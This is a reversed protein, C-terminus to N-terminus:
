NGIIPMFYVYATGVYVTYTMDTGFMTPYLPQVELTYSGNAAPKWWKIINRGYGSSQWTDIITGGQYLNVKFAAGGRKSQVILMVPQNATATFTTWDVDGAGSATSKCLNFTPSAKGYTLPIANSASTGKSENSDPTCTVAITTSAEPTEPYVEVNGVSDVGRMRFQYTSGPNGAFAYSRQNGPVQLDIWESTASGDNKNEQYQIEFHDLNDMLDVASWSLQVVTSNTVAPLSNLQTYPMDMDPQLNWIVQGKVGGSRSLAQVYLASGAIAGYQAPNVAISWGNSADSDTGLKVWSQTWDPSHWYFDMQAVPGGNADTASATIVFPVPPVKAGTPFNITVSQPPLPVSASLKLNYFYTPGGAGPYDWPKVQIYYTGDRQLIYTLVSDQLVGDQEDDNWALVSRGDSDLLALQSDLVSPPNLTKADIDILIAQGKKGTLKYYDADGPPCIKGSATSGITIAQATAPSNIKSACSTDPATTNIKISDIAWGLGGNYYADVTDFHFRVRIKKGTYNALSIPGSNLWVQDTLQDGSLQSLDKFRGTNGNADVEAVQVLRQDWYPNGDETGRYYGFSLYATGSAPLQIPPSTLDGARWQTDNYDKGNNTVWPQPHNAADIPFSSLRWLGTATWGNEGSTFDSTYPLSVAAATPLAASDVKFTRDSTNTLWTGNADKAKGVVKLTYTGAPLSGVSLSTATLGSQTLNYPGSLTFDFVTAGAGDGWSLVLSDNSTPNAGGTVPNGLPRNFLAEDPATSKSVVWLGSVTHTGIRNDALNADNGDFTEIRGTPNTVNTVDSSQDYLIARVGSGVQISAAQNDGVAGLQSAPYGSSSLSYTQCAGLYDPLAFLAVQNAGPVCSPTVVPPVASGCTHNKILQVVPIGSAQSGERDFIRVTLAFPGDPVGASCLDVEQGYPSTPTIDSIAKWTGDYNVMVQIRSIGIDDTALGQVWVTSKDIVQQNAPLDLTGSPPHAPTNGSTYLNKSMCESGYQPLERAESCTRPRGGNTTVDDFTIDVSNGWSWNTGTPSLYVHFHVHSGTSYGTNDANGIYEGQLVSAGITRLREPITEQAMHYYLQYTTPSTSQDELVLYNTCSQQNNPCSTKYAKVTGGKAALLPFMTGDAFDFAYRCSTPCSTLGGSVSYVHGITNTVYKSLGATWPLKYGSFVQNAIIEQTSLNDLYRVRIEPTLLDAPLAGLQDTFTAEGPLTITWSKPNTALSHNVNRAISLGPESAIIEGTQPDQLAVWSLATAGDSSYETRIIVPTYITLGLISQSKQQVASQFAQQVALDTPTLTAGAGPLISKVGQTPTPTPMPAAVTRGPLGSIGFIFAIALIFGTIFLSKKAAM